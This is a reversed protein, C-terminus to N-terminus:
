ASVVLETEAGEEEKLFERDLTRIFPLYIAVGLAILMLQLM